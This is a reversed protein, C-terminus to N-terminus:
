VIAVALRRLVSLLTGETGAGAFLVYLESTLEIGMGLSLFPPPLLLPPPPSEYIFHPVQPSGSCSSTPMRSLFFFANRWVKIKLSGGVCHNAGQTRSCPLGPAM